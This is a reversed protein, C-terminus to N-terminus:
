FHFLMACPDPGNEPKHRSGETMTKVSSDCSVIVLVEDIGLFRLKRCQRTTPALSRM